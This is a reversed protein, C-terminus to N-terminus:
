CVDPWMDNESVPTDEAFIALSSQCVKDNRSSCRINLLRISEAKQAASFEIASGASACGTTTLVVYGYWPIFSAPKVFTHRLGSM